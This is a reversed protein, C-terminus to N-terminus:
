QEIRFYPGANGSDGFLVIQYLDSTPVQPVQIEIRGTLLSFNFALPNEVDLLTSNHSLVVMSVESIGDAPPNSADWTVNHHNGVKWVTGNHPYLVTPDWVDRKALDSVSVPAASTSALFGSVSLVATCLAKTFHM